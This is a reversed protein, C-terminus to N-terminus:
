FSMSISVGSFFQDDQNGDNEDELDGWPYSYGITPSVTLNEKLPITVGATILGYGGDGQIFFEHNIGLEGGLDLTIGYEENVTFSHGASFIYYIGDAGGHDEDGYDFYITVAPSLIVSDLSAGVFAETTYLDAGPFDYWTHGISLTGMDSSFAYSIYGDVEDSNAADNADVDWSGWFGVNFGYAGIDLGPQLVIDDDLLFGRWVYKNYVDMTASVELEVDYQQLYDDIVTAAQASSAMSVIFIGALIGFVVTRTTNNMAKNM